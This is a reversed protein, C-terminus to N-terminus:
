TDNMKETEITAGNDHGNVNSVHEFTNLRNANNPKRSALLRTILIHVCHLQFM